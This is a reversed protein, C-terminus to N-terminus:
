EYRLAVMPDVRMARRSPIWCALLAVSALLLAMGAFVTPDFASVEYLLSGLARTLMVSAALGVVLGTLTLSLGRGAVLRLVDGRSAGLALRIGIERTRQAVWFAIVGYIGIACLALALLAFLGLLMAYSRTDASNEQMRDTLSAVNYVPISSNYKNIKERLEPIMAATPVKTRVLISM